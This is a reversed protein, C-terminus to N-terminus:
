DALAEYVRKVLAIAQERTATGQPDFRGGGVGSIIGRSSM